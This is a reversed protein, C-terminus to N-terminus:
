ESLACCAYENGGLSHMTEHVMTKKFENVFEEISAGVSDRFQTAGLNIFATDKEEMYLGRTKDLKGHYIIKHQKIVDKDLKLLMEIKM